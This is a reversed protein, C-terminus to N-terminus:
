ATGAMLAEFEDSAIALIITATDFDLRARDSFVARRLAEALLGAQVAEVNVKRAAIDLRNMSVLVKAVRELGREYAALVAAVNEAGTRDTVTIDTLKAVQDALADKLAVMEGAVSLLAEVPDDLPAYGKKRILAAASATVERRRAANRVQPAAGGHSPCVTGGRIPFRRCQEGTRRVTARCHSPGSSPKMPRTAESRDTLTLANGPSM